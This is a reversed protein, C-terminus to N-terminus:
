EGSGSPLFEGAQFLMTADHAAAVTAPASFNFTEEVKRQSRALIEFKYFYQLEPQVVLTQSWAGTSSGTINLRAGTDVIAHSNDHFELLSLSGALNVSGDSGDSTSTASSVGNFVNFINTISGLAKSITDFGTWRTWAETSRESGFLLSDRIPTITDAYVAIQPATISARAGVTSTAEHTYDGLALGVSFANAATDSDTRDSKASKSVAAAKALSQIDDARVRSVGAVAESAHVGADDGLSANATHTRDIYSIAGGLRFSKQTSGPVSPPTRAALGLKGIFWDQVGNSMPGTIRNAVIDNLISGLESSGVKAVAEAHDKQVEDIARVNVSKADGVNAGLSANASSKHDAYAVAVDATGNPGSVSEVSNAYRGVNTASVTLDNAITLTAGKNVHAEATVDAFTLAAAVGFFDSNNKSNSGSSISGEMQANNHAQVSLGSSKISAGDNVNVTSQADDKVYLAGIGLPTNVLTPVLPVAKAVGSRSLTEARITVDGDADIHAGSLLNITAHATVDSVVLNVGLLQAVFGGIREASAIALGADKDVSASGDGYSFQSKVISNAHIEVAKAKITSDAIDIQTTANATGLLPVLDTKLASLTVKGGTYGNDANALLYTGNRLTIEPATLSIDGSNGTSLEGLIAARKQDNTLGGAFNVQRSSLYVNDLTISQTAEVTISAGTVTAGDRTVGVGGSTFIDSASGSWNVTAPDILISGGLGRTAGAELRGGQITVTDHASLELQGGDGSAGGHAAIRSGAALTADHDAYVRVSGGASAAGQGSASVDAGAALMVNGGAHIDVSGAKVGAAGDAAVRGAIVTDAVSTIRVVGNVVEVGAAPAVGDINVLDAFAAVAQPGALVQAGADVAVQGGMLNVGGAANIRGKVQILGSETLAIRGALTDALAADDVAGQPSLLTDMFQTTPTALTLSGVNLVGGAGVVIGHPNLFYVNGGLSGNKYANLVGDFQSREDRVLNLLNATGTPLYLNVTQGNGINFRHFSNFGSTGRVTQTTIDTVVGHVNLQTQTRGDTAIGAAQAVGALAATASIFCNLADHWACRRLVCLYQRNLFGQASRKM